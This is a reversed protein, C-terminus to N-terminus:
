VEMRICSTLHAPRCSRSPWFDSCREKGGKDKSENHELQKPAQRM